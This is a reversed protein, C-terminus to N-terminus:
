WLTRSFSLFLCVFKHINIHKYWVDFHCCVHMRECMWRHITHYMHTLTSTINHYPKASSENTYPENVIHFIFWFAAVNESRTFKYHHHFWLRHGSSFFFQILPRISRCFICPSHTIISWALCSPKFLLSLPTWDPAAFVIVSVYLLMKWEFELAKPHGTDPCEFGYLFLASSYAARRKWYWITLNMKISLYFLSSLCDCHFYYSRTKARWEHESKRKNSSTIYRNQQFERVDKVMKEREREVLEREWVWLKRTQKEFLYFAFLHVTSIQM